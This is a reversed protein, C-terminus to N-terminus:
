KLGGANCWLLLGQRTTASRGDSPTDGELLILSQGTQTEATVTETVGVGFDRKRPIEKQADEYRPRSAFYHQRAHPCECQNLYAPPVVDVTPPSDSDYGSRHHCPQQKRPSSPQSHVGYVSTSDQLVRSAEAAFPREAKRFFDARYSPNDPLSSLM